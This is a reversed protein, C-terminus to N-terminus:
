KVFLVVALLSSTFKHIALTTQRNVQAMLAAAAVVTVGSGNGIIGTNNQSNEEIVDVCDSKRDATQAESQKKKEKM